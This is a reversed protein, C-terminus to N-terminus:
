ERDMEDRYCCVAEDVVGTGPGAGAREHGGEEDPPKM